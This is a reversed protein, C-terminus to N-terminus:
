RVDLRSTVAGAALLFAGACGGLLASVLLASLVRM